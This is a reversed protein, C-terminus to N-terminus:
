NGGESDEITVEGYFSYSAALLLQQVLQCMETLDLDDDVSSVSYEGDRNTLTLKTM